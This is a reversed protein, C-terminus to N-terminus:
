RAARASRYENLVRRVQDFMEAPVLRGRVQPYFEEAVRRWEAELEPSVRHVQLGRKRMAEVAENAEARSRAEMKQGAERAAAELAERTAAPLAEWAKRTIVTAGVLPAWNVELMHRAVGYFQGALAAVPVTPLADIMGTQLGTLADSWELSVPQYGAAKMIESQDTDGASVFMKMRKFDQPRSAPARSFFRVWGADGWFLVVFGKELLRRELEPQLQTRVHGVEELSRFMMPMKQLASTAPDIEALGTVTLMAAQIQGVRMRRVMDAESGMQAGPYITLRAGGGPAQKWKEGMEQLIHHYITGSPAPTALRIRAPSQAAAPAPQGLLGLLTVTLFKASWTKRAVGRGMETVRRWM